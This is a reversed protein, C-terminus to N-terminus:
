TSLSSQPAIATPSPLDSAVKFRTLLYLTVFIFQGATISIWALSRAWLSTKLPDLLDLYATEAHPLAFAQSIGAYALAVFAFATGLAVLWFHANMLDASPWEWECIQPVIWYMAGFMVFTYFGYTVLIEQAAFLPTFQFPAHLSRFAFIAEFIGSFTYAALGFRIFRLAPNARISTGSTRLLPVSLNKVVAILPLLLLVRAIIGVTVLWSPIPGGVFREFGTWGQLLILSWFGFRALGFNEIPQDTIKPILFYLTALALPTLWLGILNSAYWTQIGSAMIGLKLTSGLVAHLTGMLWPLAFLAAILYWLSVFLPGNIRNQLLQFFGFVMMGYAIFFLFLAGNSFEMGPLGVGEGALIGGLSWLLVGNWLTIGSIPLTSSSLSSGCLRATIWYAVGLGSLTAWGYLFLMAAAAHVRGYTLFATDNLFQPAHLKIFAILALLSSTLLWFLASSFCALVPPRVSADIKM